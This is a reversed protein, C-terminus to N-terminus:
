IIIKEIKENTNRKDTESNENQKTNSPMAETPEEPLM